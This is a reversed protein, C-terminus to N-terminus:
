GSALVRAARQGSRLAGEMLSPFEEATHEGAFALPGLRESLIRATSAPRGVSYAGGVWPDDSWTSLLAGAPELDLDGRLEALSDLWDATGEAVGLRSLAAPSGAFASVVPQVRGRSGTATWAWYREPVSLVASAPAPARLPVFLKAAQGYRIAGLAEAQRGPLSPDFELGGIVSAPVAIVCVDTEAEGDDSRVRVRDDRWSISRAASGLRLSGGLPAALAEALRQNGGAISPSPEADLRAVGALDSAPVLEAPNAASVEARALIAESAAPDLPLRELLQPVSEGPCGYGEGLAEEVVRAARELAEPELGPVGRVERQGYRMGKDWLGLGFREALDRVLTNHPLIFEAGMEVVAGNDLQRSWVRGGVRDRAELLSVEAGGRLLEDAAALGALGAGIVVARV